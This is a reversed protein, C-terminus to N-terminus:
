RKLDEALKSLEEQLDKLEQADREADRHRRPPGQYAERCMPCSTLWPECESCIFHMQHCTMYIPAAATELCVPCTLDETKKEIKKVLLSYRKKDSENVQYSLSIAMTLQLETDTECQCLIDHQIYLILIARTKPVIARRFPHKQGRLESNQSVM